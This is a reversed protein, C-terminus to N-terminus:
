EVFISYTRAVHGCWDHSPDAHWTGSYNCGTFRVRVADRGTFSPKPSYYITGGYSGAQFVATGNHPREIIETSYLMMGSSRAGQIFGTYTLLSQGLTVFVCPTGARVSIIGWGRAPGKCRRDQVTADAATAVVLTALAMTFAAITKMENREM